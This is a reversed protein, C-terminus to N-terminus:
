PNDLGQQTIKNQRGLDGAATPSCASKWGPWAASNKGRSNPDSFGWDWQFLAFRDRVGSDGTGVHWSLEQRLYFGGEQVAAAPAAKETDTWSVWCCGRGSSLCSGKSKHWWSSPHDASLWLEGGARSRSLWIQIRGVHKLRPVFSAAGLESPQGSPKASGLWSSCSNRAELQLEMSQSLIHSLRM